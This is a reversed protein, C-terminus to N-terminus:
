RSVGAMTELAVFVLWLSVYVLLARSLLQEDAAAPMWARVPRILPATLVAFFWMLRGDRRRCLRLAIKHLLLYFVALFCVFRGVFLIGGLADTV